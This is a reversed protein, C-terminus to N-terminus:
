GPGQPEALPLYVRFTTGAGPEGDVQIFGGANKVAAYVVALGLGRSRGAGRGKTTFFPEFLREKVEATLGCGTDAVTLVAHTPPDSADSSSEPREPRVAVSLEGGDPMAERANRILNLVIQTLQDRDITVFVSEGLDTRVRVGELFAEDLSQLIVEVTERLSIREPNGRDGGAFGLLARSLGAAQGCARLARRVRDALRGNGIESKLSSLSGIASTLLSNFDHAVGRAFTVTAEMAEARRTQRELQRRETVDRLVVAVCRTSGFEVPYAILDVIATKAGDAGCRLRLDSVRVQTATTLVRGILASWDPLESRGQARADLLSRGVVIQEIEGLLNTEGDHCELVVGRADCILAADRLNRFLSRYKAESVQLDTQARALGEAMGNMAEGLAGLEDNSRLSLRFGLDGRAFQRTAGHLARIPVFIWRRVLVSGAIVLGVGLVGIVLSLILVQTNTAVLEDVSRNRSDDLRNRATRLRLDLAPLLQREIRERLVEQARAQESSQVLVACREFEGALRATLALLEDAEAPRSDRLAFRAVQRLEDFFDDRRARYLEDVPRVGDVAERLELLQGRAELRVRDIWAADDMSRQLSTLAGAVHWRVAYITAFTAALAFGAFAVLLYILRKQLNM